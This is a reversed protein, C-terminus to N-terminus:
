TELEKPVLSGRDKFPTLGRRARRALRRPNHMEGHALASKGSPLRSGPFDQVKAQVQGLFHGWRGGFAVGGSGPALGVGEVEGEEEEAGEVAEGVPGFLGM